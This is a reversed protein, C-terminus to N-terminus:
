AFILLWVDHYPFVFCFGAIGPFAAEVLDLFHSAEGRGVQIGDFCNEHDEDLLFLLLFPCLWNAEM